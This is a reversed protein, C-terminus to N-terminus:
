APLRAPGAPIPKTALLTPRDLANQSNTPKSRRTGQQARRAVVFRAQRPSEPQRIRARCATIDCARAEAYIHSATQTMVRRLKPHRILPEHDAAARYRGHPLSPKKGETKTGIPKGRWTRRFRRSEQASSPDPQTAVDQRFSVRATRASTAHHDDGVRCAQGVCHKPRRQDYLRYCDIRRM